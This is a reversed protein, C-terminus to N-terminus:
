DLVIQLGLEQEFTNCFFYYAPSLGKRVVLLDAKSPHRRAWRWFRGLLGGAGSSFTMAACWVSCLIVPDRWPARVSPRGYRVTGGWVPRRAAPCAPSTRRARLPRRRCEM